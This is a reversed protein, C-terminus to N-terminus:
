ISWSYLIQIGMDLSSEPKLYNRIDRESLNCEWIRSDKVPLNVYLWDLKDLKDVKHWKTIWAAQLSHNKTEIDVLKLGGKEYDQVLKNYKIQAPKSNWIFKLIMVKYKIFFEKPPTPLSMFKYVLLSAILTNVLTIRGVLTLSRNTWCALIEEMKQLTNLFNYQYMLQKNPHYWNGLIKVPGDPWFFKKMTYFRADTDCLPGLIFAMSKEYNITLGSFESFEALESLANNINEEMPDLALWTDDAYQSSLLYSTKM